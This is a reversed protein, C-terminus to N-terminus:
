DVGKIIGELESIPSSSKGKIVRLAWWGLQNLRQKREECGCPGGVFKEVRDKTIGLSNLASEIKDGLGTV